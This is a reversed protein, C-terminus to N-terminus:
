DDIKVPLTESPGPAAPQSTLWVPSEEGRIVKEWQSLNNRPPLICHCNSSLRPELVANWLPGREM